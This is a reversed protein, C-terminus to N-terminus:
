HVTPISGGGFLVPISLIHLFSFRAPHTSTLGPNHFSTFASRRFRKRTILSSSQSCKAPHEGTAEQAEEEYDDRNDESKQHYSKQHWDTLSQEDDKNPLPNPWGVDVQIADDHRRVRQLHIGRVCADVDIEVQCDPLCTSARSM